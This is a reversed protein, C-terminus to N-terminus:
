APDKTPIAPQHVVRAIPIAVLFVTRIISKYGADINPFSDLNDALIQLLEPLLVGAAALWVSWSKLLTQKWNAILTM